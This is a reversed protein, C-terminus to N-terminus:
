GVDKEEESLFRGQIEYEKKNRTEPEDLVIREIKQDKAMPRPRAHPVARPGKFDTLRAGKHTVPIGHGWMIYTTADKLGAM